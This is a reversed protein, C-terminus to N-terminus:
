CGMTCIRVSMYAMGEQYPVPEYDDVMISGCDPCKDYDEEFTICYRDEIIVDGDCIGSDNYICQFVKCDIM